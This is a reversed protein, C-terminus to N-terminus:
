IKSALSKNNNKLNVVKKTRPKRSNLYELLPEVGRIFRIDREHLM